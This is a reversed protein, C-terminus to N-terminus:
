KYNGVNTDLWKSMNVYDMKLIGKEKMDKLCTILGKFSLSSNILREKIVKKKKDSLRGIRFKLKSHIYTTLKCYNVPIIRLKPKDADFGLLENIESIDINNETVTTKTETITKAKTVITKMVEKKSSKIQEIYLYHQIFQKLEAFNFMLVSAGQKIRVLYITNSNHPMVVDVDSCWPDSAFHDSVRVKLNKYQFYVSKTTTSDKVSCKELQELWKTLRSM